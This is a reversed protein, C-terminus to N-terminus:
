VGGHDSLAEQCEECLWGHETERMEGYRGCEHCIHVRNWRISACVECIMGLGPRDQLPVNDQECIECCM